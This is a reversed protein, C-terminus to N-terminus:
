IIESNNLLIEVTENFRDFLERNDSKYLGQYQNRFSNRIKSIFNNAKKINIDKDAVLVVFFGEEFQYLIISDKMEINELDDHAIKKAFEIISSFFGLLLAENKKEDVFSRHYLQSYDDSSVIWLYELSNKTM